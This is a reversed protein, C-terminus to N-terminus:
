GRAAFDSAALNYPIESLLLLDRAVDQLVICSGLSPHKGITTRVPGEDVRGFVEMKAHIDALQEVTIAHQHM